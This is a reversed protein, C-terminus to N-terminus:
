GMFGDINVGLKRMKEAAQDASMSPVPEAESPQPKPTQKSAQPANKKSTESM